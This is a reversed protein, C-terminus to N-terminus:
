RTLREVVIQLVREAIAKGQGGENGVGVFVEVDKGIAVASSSNGMQDWIWAEDGIGSLKEAKNRQASGRLDYGGDPALAPGTNVFFHLGGAPPVEYGCETHGPAEPNTDGRVSSVIRVGGRGVIREVDQANLLATCDWGKAVDHPGTPGSTAAATQGPAAKDAGGCGSAVMAIVGLWLGIKSGRDMM